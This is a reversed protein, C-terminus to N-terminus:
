YCGDLEEMEELEELVAEVTAGILEEAGKVTSPAAQAALLPRLGARVEALSLALNANSNLVHQLLDVSIKGEYNGQELARSTQALHLGAAELSKLAMMVIQANSVPGSGAGPRAATAIRGRGAQAQEFRSRAM